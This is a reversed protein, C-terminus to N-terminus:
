QNDWGAVLKFCEAPDQDNVCNRRENLAQALEAQANALEIQLQGINCGAMVVRRKGSDQTIESLRCSRAGTHARGTYGKDLQYGSEWWNCHRALAKSPCADVATSLFYALGVVTCIEFPAAPSRTAQQLRPSHARHAVRLIRGPDDHAASHIEAKSGAESHLALLTDLIKPCNRPNNIM